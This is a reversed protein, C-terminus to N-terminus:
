QAPYENSHPAPPDSRGGELLVLKPRGAQAPHTPQVLRPLERRPDIIRTTVLTVPALTSTGIWYPPALSVIAGMLRSEQRAALRLPLLVFELNVSERGPVDARLGGNIPVSAVVVDDLLRKMAEKDGNSVLDLFPRGKLESAFLACVRTGALRFPFGRQANGELIFTDGLVSRIAAPDVASRDPAARTGRLDDWYRVLTRIAQHRM